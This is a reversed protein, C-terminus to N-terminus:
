VAVTEGAEERALVYVMFLAVLVLLHGLVVGFPIVAKLAQCLLGLALVGTISWFARPTDSHHLACVLMRVILLVCFVVFFYIGHEGIWLTMGAAALYLVLEMLRVAGWEKEERKRIFCVMRHTYSRVLEFMVVFLILWLGRRLREPLVFCHVLVGGAASVALLLFAHLWEPKVGKKKKLLFFVILPAIVLPLDTLGKWLEDPTTLIPM